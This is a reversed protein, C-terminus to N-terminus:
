NIKANSYEIADNFGKKYYIDSAAKLEAAVRDLFEMMIDQDEESLKLVLNDMWDGYDEQITKGM